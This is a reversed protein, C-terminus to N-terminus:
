LTEYEGLRSLREQLSAMPNEQLLQALAPLNANRITYSLVGTKDMVDLAQIVRNTMLLHNIEKKRRNLSIKKLRERVQPFLSTVSKDPEKDGYVAWFRMYRYIRLADEEMRVIPSGIFRVRHNLLDDQGDFYDYIQGTKDMSMANITFDRRVADQEYDTIFTVSEQNSLYRDQRLTTIEFQIHDLEAAVVGRKLTVPRCPIQHAELRELVIKPLLPTAMDWDTPIRHCIFDRVCGGVLRMQGGLAQDIRLVPKTWLQEM